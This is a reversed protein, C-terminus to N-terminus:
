SLHLDECYNSLPPHWTGRNIMYIMRTLDVIVDWVHGEECDLLLSDLFSQGCLYIRSHCYMGCCGVGITLDPELAIWILDLVSEM